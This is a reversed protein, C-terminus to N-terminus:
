IRLKFKFKRFYNMKVKRNLIGFLAFFFAALLGILIGKLGDIKEKFLNLYTKQSPHNISLNDLSDEDLLKHTSEMNNFDMKPM